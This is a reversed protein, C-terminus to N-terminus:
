PTAHKRDLHLLCADPEAFPALELHEPRGGHEEAVGRLLGLHVACVIDPYQRAAALLPCTTLRVSDAEPAPEPSFGLDTLLTTVATRATAPGPRGLDPRETSLRRGWSRGAAVADAVPDASTRRLTDALATALGVYEASTPPTTVARYRWAPRGRGRPPASERLVLGAHVLAELHERVTNTHLGSHRALEAATVPAPQRELQALLAARAASM